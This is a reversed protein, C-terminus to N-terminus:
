KVGASMSGNARVYGAMDQAALRHIFQQVRAFDANGKPSGGFQMRVAARKADLAIRKVKRM